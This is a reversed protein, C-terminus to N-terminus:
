KPRAMRRGDPLVFYELSPTARSYRGVGEATIKGRLVAGPSISQSDRAFVKRLRPLGELHTLGADTIPLDELWLVELAPMAFALVMGLARVFRRRKPAVVTSLPSSM